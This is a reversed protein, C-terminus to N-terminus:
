LSDPPAVDPPPCESVSFPTDLFGARWPLFLHREGEERGAFVDAFVVFSFTLAGSRAFPRCFLGEPHSSLPAIMATNPPDTSPAAILPPSSRLSCCCAVPPPVRLFFFYLERITGQCFRRASSSFSLRRQLFTVRRRRPIL